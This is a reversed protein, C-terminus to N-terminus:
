AVQIFALGTISLGDLTAEASWGTGDIVSVTLNIANSGVTVIGEHLFSFKFATDYLSNSGIGIGLHTAYELVSGDGVVTVVSGLAKGAFGIRIDSGNLIISFRYKTNPQLNGFPNSLVKASGGSSLGWNVGSLVSTL